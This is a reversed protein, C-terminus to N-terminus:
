QTTFMQCICIMRAYTADSLDAPSASEHELLIRQAIEEIEADICSWVSAIKTEDVLL